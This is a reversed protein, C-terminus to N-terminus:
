KLMLKYSPEFRLSFSQLCTALVKLPSQLVPMISILSDNTGFLFCSWSLSLSLLSLSCTFSEHKM